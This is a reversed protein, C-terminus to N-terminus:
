PDSWGNVFTDYEDANLTLLERIAMELHHEEVSQGTIFTLKWHTNRGKRIQEAIEEKRPYGIHSRQLIDLWRENVDSNDHIIKEGTIRMEMLDNVSANVIVYVTHTAPDRQIECDINQGNVCVDVDINQDFGRLAIKWNRKNPILTIDGKAPEIVFCPQAGWKLKMNTTTYKGNEFNNYEGEDQYLTFTNDAGPFVLIEMNESNILRNEHEEYIAMPIIAGSKAFVPYSELPRFVDMKRGTHWKSIYRTGNFMDFWEGQPFWCEARGLDTVVGNKEVIPAVIIESGFWYQNKAEYAGNKKPHSYYMPQILPILEKHNKYNMTYIYPFMKHRLRLTDSLIKSIHSDFYWPEKHLSEYPCSHLRNIPSFVGLQMWRVMLEDDRYGMMHGGIDHSWWGYGINTATATFYPQFALSEWTITTDGSFGVPYRQSGPGSFRSFLMPRKGDRAIDLIHLHNLMWLPDTTERPDRKEDAENGYKWWYEDGQQFDMWWFGVGDEEYPHHIIDFYNEMFKRDIIDFPVFLTDEPNKGMAKAMKPFIEEYKRIGQAPHLNLSSVINRENLDSLFKKYDPFLETNWTYGTWGNVMLRHFSRYEEKLEEPLDVIHWDMDIVAVSFPIDESKFRDMLDIYEKQTYKHYRSWWNGLAYAPLLPPVGTLRYYDQVANLYDYSYGFFYVDKTNPTRLEIWGDEGLVMSKSDDIISFGNRSCVGTGLPIPGNVMDLTKRTGGLDEFEDGFIWESAPEVLMKIKLNGEFIDKSTDYILMLNDTKLTLVENNLDYTFRNEPFDRYFVSQSARDEFEGSADFEMRILRSTLVTFRYNKGSVMNSSSAKPRTEWVFRKNNM